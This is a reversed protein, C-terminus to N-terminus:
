QFEFMKIVEVVNFFDVKALGFCELMDPSFLGCEGGMIMDFAINNAYVSKYVRPSVLADYVDAIAVVQASIPIEEGVLHDPYGNGDWREHHYRCIEYCYKYFDSDHNGYFKELIDCGITTHTKMVEFEQTTLREPKLLISDPIGIKGIDHLASARTIEAIQTDTIGYKPFYQQLYRLMIRTFYKIRRTHEGTEASRFEVVSSLADIMFENNERIKKEQERIEQEQEKLRIEMNRKNQYLEMINRSRKRVIHPYFPKHIVDAVGYKYAKEESDLVTEGTVIIVPIKELLDHEKMYELVQFGDVIPMVIDLLILAIDPNNEICSIAEQGDEAELTEFKDQFAVNLVARNIDEDDVILIYQKDMAM